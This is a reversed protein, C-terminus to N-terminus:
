SIALRLYNKEKKYAILVCTFAIQFAILQRMGPYFFIQYHIISIFSLLTCLYNKTIMNDIEPHIKVQNNINRILNISYMSFLIIIFGVVILGHSIALMGFGFDGHELSHKDGVAYGAGMGFLLDVISFDSMGIVPDVFAKWYYAEAYYEFGAEILKPDFKYLFLKKLNFSVFIVFLAFSVKYLLKSIKSNRLFYILLIICTAFSILATLTVSFVFCIVATSLWIYSGSSMREGKLIPAFFFIGMLAIISAGQAEFLMSNPSSMGKIVMSPLQRYNPIFQYFLDNYGIMQAFIEIMIFVINIKLILAIGNNYCPISKESLNDKMLSYFVIIYLFSIIIIRGGQLADLVNSFFSCIWHALLISFCFIFTVNSNFKLNQKIIYFAFFLIIMVDSFVSFSLGYVLDLFRM